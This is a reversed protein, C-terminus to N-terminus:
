YITYRRSDRDVFCRPMIPMNGRDHVQALQEGVDIPDRDDGVTDRNFCYIRNPQRNLM